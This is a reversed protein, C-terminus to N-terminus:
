ASTALDGKSGGAVVKKFASRKALKRILAAYAGRPTPLKVPKGLLGSMLMANGLELGHIGETGPAILTEGQTIANVFNQTVQQHQGGWAAGAPVEITMRTAPVNAFRELTTKCFTSVSQETHIFEITSGGDTVLRGRDGTIELRNTGPSEGTSTIFVGTAGNKFRMTAIVEDEVEIRHYKGLAVQATVEVPMGVFWQFLDLNHPCQNILVGGGEGGWTARWGGSNFYAQSRFWNTIIWNVRTIEGLWGETVMQRVKRWAPSTRQNFMVGFVVKGKVKRYAQNTREAEGATVAVPKECLVHLGHQFALRTLVPHDYHPTAILVADVLGSKMLAAGSSFGKLNPHKETHRKVAAPLIDAVATFALGNVKDFYSIHSSGMGGCGIVGLRVPKM